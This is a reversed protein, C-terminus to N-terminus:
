VHKWTKRRVIDHVADRSIPFKESIASLTLGEARLARIKVVDIESVKSTGHSSGRTQTGHIQKDEINQKHTGWTLNDSVNALGNGDLHRGAKGAPRLGKFADLVLSHITRFKKKPGCLWVRLYKNSLHQKLIKGAHFHSHKKKAEWHTRVRGINSVQYYGEHGVVEKWIETKTRM